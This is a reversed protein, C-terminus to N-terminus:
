TNLQYWKPGKVLFLNNSYKLNKKQRTKTWETLNGNPKIFFTLHSCTDSQWQIQSNKKYLFINKLIYIKNKKFFIGLVLSLHCMNVRSVHWKTM